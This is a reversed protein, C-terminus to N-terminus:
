TAVIYIWIYVFSYAASQNCWSLFNLGLKKKVFCYIHPIAFFSSNENLFIKPYKIKFYPVKAM